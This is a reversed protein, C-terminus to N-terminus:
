GCWRCGHGATPASAAPTTSGPSRLRTGGPWCVSGRAGGSRTEPSLLRGKTTTASRDSRPRPVRRVGMGAHRVPRAGGPLFPVPDRGDGIATATIGAGSERIHQDIRHGESSVFWKRTEWLHYVAEALDAGHETMMTTARVLLDGKDSLGVNFPDTACGSAWSASVPESAVLGPSPRSVLASAVAIEAAVVGAERVARDGLDSVAFFGWGSGVLARVGIGSDADQDVSEIEGTRASMSEHRRHMVRADACQAGADLAAQVALEAAHFESM